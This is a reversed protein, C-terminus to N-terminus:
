DNGFLNFNNSILIRSLSWWLSEIRVWLGLFFEIPHRKGYLSVWKPNKFYTEIKVSKSGKVHCSTMRDWWIGRFLWRFTEGSRLCHFVRSQYLYNTTEIFFSVSQLPIYFGRATELLPPSSFQFVIWERKISCAKHYPLIIEILEYNVNCVFFLAVGWKLNIYIQKFIYM